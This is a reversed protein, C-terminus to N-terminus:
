LQQSKLLVGYIAGRKKVPTVFQNLLLIVSSAAPSLLVTGDKNRIFPPVHLEHKPVPLTRAVSDGAQFSKTGRTM